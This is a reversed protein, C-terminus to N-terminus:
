PGSSAPRSRSWEGRLEHQGRMDLTDGLDTEWAYTDILGAPFTIADNLPLM